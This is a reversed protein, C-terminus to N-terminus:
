HGVGGSLIFVALIWILLIGAGAIMGPSVRKEEELFVLGGNYLRAELADYYQGARRMSVILLNGLSRGFTRLSTPYDRYGLRSEGAVRMSCAVDTMLFIFRYIMNMLDVFLEPVHCDRLVSFIEGSPTSLSLMYMALVAGFARAWLHLTLNVSSPSMSLYVQFIRFNLYAEPAPVAGAPFLLVISGAILFVLPITLLGLFRGFEMGGAVVTVYTCVTIIILSVLLNDCLISILILTLSALIKFGAPLSLLGSRCAYEDISLRREGHRHGFGHGKTKGSVFIVRILLAGCPILTILLALFAAFSETGTMM